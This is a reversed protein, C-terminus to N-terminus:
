LTFGTVKNWFHGTREGRGTTSFIRAFSANSVQSRTQSASKGTVNPPVAATGPAKPQPLVTIEWAKDLYELASQTTYTPQPSRPFSIASTNVSKGSSVVIISPFSSGMICRVVNTAFVDFMGM